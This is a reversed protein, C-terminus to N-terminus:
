MKLVNMLFRFKVDLNEIKQNTSKGSGHGSDFDMYLLVPNKQGINSQAQAVFKKAHVADVRTDYEGATVLTTPLSVGKRINHYPSYQLLTQFDQKEDACGYEPIWYRAILFKHYRLMDLLPVSSIAAKYLDPRQTIVAGVLLGGNSGGMIALKETNTYKAEILYEGAAIFDDFCNQKKHLMGDQHWKEGYENGGRIGAEAFIGGRNVFLAYVGIFDPKIGINFGGYGYLLVPNEGNLVTDKRKTIFIPIKTGDKSFYFSIETELNESSIPNHKEYFLEWDISDNVLDDPNLKFIRFPASFSTMVVFVSEIERNYWIGAIHGNQPPTLEKIIKGDLGCLFLKSVIDEKVRILLHNKTVAFEEVVYDESGHLMKSSEFSPNDLSSVCIKFNPFENNTIFYIKDELGFASARYDNSSYIEKWPGDEDTRRIKLSKTSNFDGTRQYQIPCYHGDVVYAYQKADPPTVMLIDKSHDTGLQHKYISVPIQNDIMEKTRIGIYAFNEDKAWEFTMLNEVPDQLISSTTTDIIYYTLIEDGKLEVGIAAKDGEFTFKVQNISAKGSPDLKVPDFLLVDEGKVKTYLKKQQDGKCNRFFFHRESVLIPYSDIDRDVYESIEERLSDVSPCFNELYKVTEDHKKRTWSIASPDTKNELWRFEDTILCGHINETVAEPRSQSSSSPSVQQSLNPAAQTTFDFKSMSSLLGFNRSCYYHM